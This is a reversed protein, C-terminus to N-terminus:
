SVGSLGGSWFAASFPTLYNSTRLEQLTMDQHVHKSILLQIPRLKAGLDIAIIIIDLTL